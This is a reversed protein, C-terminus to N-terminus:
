NKKLALIQSYEAKSNKGYMKLRYFIKENVSSEYFRYMEDGEKESTFVLAATSFKKGDASREVEFREATENETIAWQLYVKKNKESITFDYLKISQDTHAILQVQNRFNNGTFTSNTNEILADTLDALHFNFKEDFQLQDLIVMGTVRTIHMFPIAVDIIEGDLSAKDLNDISKRYSLKGPMNTNDALLDGGKVAPIYNYIEVAFKEDSGSWSFRIVPENSIMKKDNDIDLYVMFDVPNFKAGEKKFNLHLQYKDHSFSFKPLQENENRISNTLAASNYGDEPFGNLSTKKKDIHIRTAVIDGQSDNSQSFALYPMSAFVMFSTLKFIQKMELPNSNIILEAGM